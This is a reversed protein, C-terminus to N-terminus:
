LSVWESAIPNDSGPKRFTVMLDEPNGSADHSLAAGDGLEIQSGASALGMNIKEILADVSDLGGEIFALQLAKHLPVLFSANRLVVHPAESSGSLEVTSMTSVVLDILVLLEGEQEASNGLQNATNDIDAPM